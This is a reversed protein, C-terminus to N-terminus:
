SQGHQEDGYIVPPTGIHGVRLSPLAWIKHGLKRAENCFYVDEGIEGIRFYPREMGDFVSRHVMMCGFGGNQIEFPEDKWETIVESNLGLFVPKYLYSDVRKEAMAHIEPDSEGVHKLAGVLAKREMEGDSRGYYIGTTMQAVKCRLMETILDAPPVVDSDLWLSWKADTGLFFDALDNRSRHVGARENEQPIVEIGNLAAHVSLAVSARWAKAPVSGQCPMLLCVKM